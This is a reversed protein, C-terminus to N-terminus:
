IGGPAIIGREMWQRLFQARDVHVYHQGFAWRFKAEVLDLARLSERPRDSHVLYDMVTEPNWNGRNAEPLKLVTGLKHKTFNYWDVALQEQRLLVLNTPMRGDMGTLWWVYTGHFGEYLNGPHAELQSPHINQIYWRHFDCRPDELWGHITSYAAAALDHPHRGGRQYRGLWFLYQSVQQVYPNRIVAVVYRFSSAPRELLRECDSLRMHGIPFPNDPTPERGSEGSGPIAPRQGQMDPVQDWLAKKVATGGTKPIHVFLLDQNYCGM